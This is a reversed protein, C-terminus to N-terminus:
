ASYHDSNKPKPWFKEKFGFWFRFKPKPKPKAM